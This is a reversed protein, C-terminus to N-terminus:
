HSRLSGTWELVVSVFLIIRVSAGWGREPRFNWGLSASAYKGLVEKIEYKIELDSSVHFIREKSKKDV